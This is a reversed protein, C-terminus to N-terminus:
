RSDLLISPLCLIEGGLPYSWGLPCFEDGSSLIWGSLVFNVGLPCSRWLPHLKGRPEFNLIPRLDWFLDHSDTSMWACQYRSVERWVHLVHIYTSM